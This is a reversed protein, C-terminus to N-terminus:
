VHSHTEKFIDDTRTTLLELMSNPKCAITNCRHVKLKMGEDITVTANNKEFLKEPQKKDFKHLIKFIEIM